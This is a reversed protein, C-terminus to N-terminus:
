EIGLREGHKEVLDGINGVFFRGKPNWGTEDRLHIVTTGYVDGTNAFTAVLSGWWGNQWKGRIAEVGYLGLLDNIADLRLKSSLRVTLALARKCAQQPNERYLDELQNKM